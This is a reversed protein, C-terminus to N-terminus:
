FRKCLRFIFLKDSTPVQSFFFSELIFTATVNEELYSPNKRKHNYNNHKVCHTTHVTYQTNGEM